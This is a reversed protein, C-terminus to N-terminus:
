GKWEKDDDSCKAKKRKTSAKPKAKRKGAPVELGAALIQDALTKQQALLDAEAEADLRQKKALDALRKQNQKYEAQALVAAFAPDSLKKEDRIRLVDSEQVVHYGNGHCIRLQGPVHAAILDEMTVGYLKEANKTSIVKGHLQQQGLPTTM